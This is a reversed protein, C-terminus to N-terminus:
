LLGVRHGAGRAPRTELPTDCEAQDETCRPSSREEAATLHEREQKEDHALRNALKAVTARGGHARQVGDADAVARLYQM